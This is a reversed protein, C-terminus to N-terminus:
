IPIIFLTVYMVSQPAYSNEFTWIQSAFYSEQIIFGIQFDSRITQVKWFDHWKSFNDFINIPLIYLQSNCPLPAM